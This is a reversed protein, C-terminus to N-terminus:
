AVGLPFALIFVLSSALNALLTAAAMGTQKRQDSHGGNLARSAAFGSLVLVPLGLVLIWLSVGVLMSALMTPYALLMAAAFIKAAREPGFRVVITKKSVARDAEYDPFENVVIVGFITLSAPVAILVMEPNMEGSVLYFGSVVTLVGYCIGILVEGLGMYSWQFPPSSYFIGCFGGFLALPLLLPYDDFYLVMYTIAVAVLVAVSIWGAARAVPRPVEHDPIARSGGSFKTFKKNILDGEYDYYENFYYTALMIFAMGIFSIGVLGPEYDHDMRIAIGTGTLLAALGPSLFPLRSLILLGKVSTRGTEPSSREATMDISPIPSLIVVILVRNHEHKAGLTSGGPEM